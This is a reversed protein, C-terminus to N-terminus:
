FLGDSTELSAKLPQAGSTKEFSLSIRLIYDQNPQLPFTKAGTASLLIALLYSPKM